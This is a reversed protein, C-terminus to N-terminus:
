EGKEAARLLKYPDAGFERATRRRPEPAHRSVRRDLLGQLVAKEASESKGSEIDGVM